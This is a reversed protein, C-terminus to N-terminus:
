IKENITTSQTEAPFGDDSGAHRKESDIEFSILRLTNIMLAIQVINRLLVVVIAVTNLQVLYTYTLDGNIMSLIGYLFALMLIENKIRGNLCALQTITLLMLAWIVYQASFIKSFTMFALVMELSALLVIIRVHVADTHTRVRYLRVLVWAFIALLVLPLIYNLSYAIIDPLEGNINYSGYGFSVSILGPDLINFFMIFSSAVSEIQLGRDLHYTLYSFATSPDSIIFPLSILLCVAVCVAIGRLAGFYDKRILFPIFLAPALVLPYMKTMVGLCLLVWSAAYKKNLFYYFSMICFVTPYIDNRAIVFINAMALTMLLLLMMRGNHTGNKKAILGVYYVGVIFFALSQFAYLICYVDRNSTFLGPIVMFLMALPPYEFDFDRYPVMGSIVYEAYTFYHDAADAWKGYYFMIPILILVIALSIKAFRSTSCDPFLMGYLRRVFRNNMM